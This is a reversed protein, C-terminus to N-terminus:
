FFYPRKKKRGKKQRRKKQSTKKTFGKKKKLPMMQDIECKTWRSRSFNSHTGHWGFIYKGLLSKAGFRIYEVGFKSAFNKVKDHAKKWFM